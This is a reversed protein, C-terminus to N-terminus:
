RVDCLKVTTYYTKHSTLKINIVIKANDVWRFCILIIKSGLSINKLLNSLKDRVKVHSIELAGRLSLVIYFIRPNYKMMFRKCKKLTGVKMQM